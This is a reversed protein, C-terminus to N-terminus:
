DLITHNFMRRDVDFVFVDLKDSSSFSGMREINLDLEYKENTLNKQFLIPTENIEIFYGVKFCEDAKYKLEDPISISESPNVISVDLIGHTWSFCVSVMRFSYESDLILNVDNNLSGEHTIKLNSKQCKKADWDYRIQRDIGSTARYDQFCRYSSDNQVLLTYNVNIPALIVEPSGRFIGNKFYTGNLNITFKLNNCPSGSNDCLIITKAKLEEKKGENKSEDFFSFYFIGAVTTLLVFVIFFFFIKSNFINKLGM